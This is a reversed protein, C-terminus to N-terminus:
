LPYRRTAAAPSFSPQRASCWTCTSPTRILPLFTLLALTHMWWLVRATLSTDAVFFAALYTAMLAFILFAIFGSEWSLKEGLWRPRILFRRIFLGLIGVACALAFAAAFYFYWRGIPGDTSLFGIGFGTACHNLTV